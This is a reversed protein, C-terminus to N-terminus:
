KVGDVVSKCPIGQDQTFLVLIDQSVDVIGYTGTCLILTNGDGYGCNLSHSDINKEM